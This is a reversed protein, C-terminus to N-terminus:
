NSHITSLNFSFTTGKNIKSEVSITTDHLELIKKAIALGLGTGGSARDRSKEVRYFREFVRPIEGEPIGCGTDSVAVRVTERQSFLGVEVTGNEATYHLANDILNSLVREIMGIDANVMALNKPLSAQLNINLDEAESKFKMVVDQTLEAMSFTEPAPQVQQADLKSLEFLETVLKSLMATNDFIVQLYRRRDEPTINAEKMLITELYGQMSALPSRLDHSVNAILDRRVRDNRKLEEMNAVITDAMQNFAGALQGIEDHSSIEIRQEFEGNEFKRVVETMRHFRKTLFGFLILGVIAAFLLTVALSVATTRIIYSEKIMASASDYQEGGLIVYLFGNIDQGIKTRAVSFPKKRGEHRPDDGLIPMKGQGDLFQQIPQLRVLELKVKKRPDAFFALVKGRGDLLYIEVRPNMVMLEHITHGIGAHDLSDSLFPKLKNALDGALNKNLVQDSERMFNMSSNVSVWIHIVGLTLLLILFIASIKGYLSHFFKKIM